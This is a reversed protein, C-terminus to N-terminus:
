ICVASKAKSCEKFRRSLDEKDEDRFNEALSVLKNCDNFLNSLRPTMGLITAVENKSLKTRKLIATAQVMFERMAEQENHLRETMEIVLRRLRPYLYTEEFNFHGNTVNDIENLFEKAQSLNASEVARGFSSILNLLDTHVKQFDAIFAHLTM